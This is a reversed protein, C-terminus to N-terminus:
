ELLSEPEIKKLKEMISSSVRLSETKPIDNINM